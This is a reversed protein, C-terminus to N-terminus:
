GVLLGAPHELFLKLTKLFQAGEAGDVVRHDAALSLHLRKGPVVAGNHVVPVEEVGGVGLIAAQPPNIIPFFSGVGYMGLNSITFSGGQFEHPHLKGEKARAALEKVEASIQGLHKTDAHTIIPTILGAPIAVAISIDVTQYRVIGPTHPDFGSNVQPHERLALATARTVLDNVTVKLGWATLQERLAMMPGADVAMSLYFHPITTKSELLREGIVKRMPSLEELTASGAPLQPTDRRGFAVPSLPAAAALDRALVRGGPGTGAVSGVDLNQQAAIKKAYPSAQVRGQSSGFPVRERTSVVPHPAVPGPAAVKKPAPRVPAAPTPKPALAPAPAQAPAAPSAAPAGGGAWEPTYGAISEDAKVTCVAIPQNVKAEMGEPVLIERLFGKDLAQYEVTAKDTSVEILLDGAAIADGVKKHWKVVVGGEMTPSLKPLTVTFPM